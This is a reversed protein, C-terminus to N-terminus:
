DRLGVFRDLGVLRDILITAAITMFILVASVASLTQDLNWRMYHYMAVPLPVTDANILFVTVSFDDFSLIFAFVGGAFIGTRIQPLTIRLFVRVPNAGLGIAAEDLQRNYRTLAISVARFTFPLSIIVHGIAINWFAVYSRLSSFLVLLALGTVVTPVIIPITLVTEMIKGPLIEYRWLAYAALTGIALSVAAVITAIEVSVLFGSTLEPKDFINLYWKLSYGTPPIITYSDRAFSLFVVLGIPVFLLLLAAARLSGVVGLAGMRVTQILPNNRRGRLGGGEM